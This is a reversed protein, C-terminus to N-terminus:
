LSHSLALLVILSFEVVATCIKVVSAVAYSIGDTVTFGVVKLQPVSTQVMDRGANFISKPLLIALQFTIVCYVRDFIAPDMTCDPM